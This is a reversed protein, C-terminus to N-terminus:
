RIYGLARLREETLRDPRSSAQPKIRPTVVPHLRKWDDLIKVLRALDAALSKSLDRSEAPDNELNYLELSGSSDRILKLPWDILSQYDRGFLRPAVDVLAPDAFAESLIPRGSCSRGAATALLSCGAPDPRAAAAKMFTPFIDVLSVPTESRIGKQPVGSGWLVLPVHLLPQYLTRGHDAMGGRDGLYEGHDSTVALLANKLIGRMELLDFLKKLAQDAYAIESDYLDATRHWEKDPLRELGACLRAFRPVGQVRSLFDVTELSSAGALWPAVGAHAQYPGHADFYNAFVFLPRPDRSKQDLFSRIRATVTEADPEEKLDAPAFSEFGRTVGLGPSLLVAGVAGVTRYGAKSLLEPLPALDSRMPLVPTALGEEAKAAEAGAYRAGHESPLLGTFMSAHAPHTWPAPTFAQTFTMGEDALRALFPTTPRAYGLLSAHDARVTDIVILILNPRTEATKTSAQDAPGPESPKASKEERGCGSSLLVVASISLIILRMM